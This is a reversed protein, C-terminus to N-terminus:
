YLGPGLLAFNTITARKRGEIFGVGWMNLKKKEGANPRKRTCEYMKKERVGERLPFPYLLPAPHYIRQKNKELAWELVV